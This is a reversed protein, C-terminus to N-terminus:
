ETRETYGWTLKRGAKPMRRFTTADHIRYPITVTFPVVHPKVLITVVERTVNMNGSIRGVYMKVTGPAFAMAEPVMAIPAVNLQGQWVTVLADRYANEALVQFWARNENALSITLDDQITQDTLSFAPVRLGAHPVFQTFGDAWVNQMAGTTRNLFIDGFEDDIDTIYFPNDPIELAVLSVPANNEGATHQGNLGTVSRM